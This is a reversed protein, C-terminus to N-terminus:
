ATPKLACKFIVGAFFKEFAILTVKHKNKCITQAVNSFENLFIISYIRGTHILMLEYLCKSSLNLFDSEPFYMHNSGIHSRMQEHPCSSSVNSLNSQLFAKGNRDIRSHM